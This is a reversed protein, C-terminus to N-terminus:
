RPIEFVQGPYILDPDRIQDNNAEYIITYNFGTGLTRRAIRWLSNGPQVVIFADSDLDTLPAARSFPIELRSVVNGDRLADLRLRYVGPAVERDPNIRWDGDQDVPAAGLASNDLYAVIDSDQPGRGAISINGQPDYDITDVALAGDSSRVGGPEATATQALNQGSSGSADTDTADADSTSSDAPPAQIVEAGPRNGDPILLVLPEQAQPDDTERGAIDQGREPVMMVVADGGFVPDSGETEARLRLEHSGPELPSSPLFVWEGRSDATVTGLVDEGDLITVNAGPEARGAIVADGTRDIRIVDFSPATDPGPGADTATESGDQTASAGSQGSDGTGATTGTAAQQTNDAGDQSDPADPLQVSTDQTDDATNTGTGDAASESQESDPATTATEPEEWLALILALLILGGGIIGIWVTKSVFGGAAIADNSPKIPICDAGDM